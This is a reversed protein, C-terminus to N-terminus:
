SLHGLQSAKDRLAGLFQLDAPSASNGKREILRILTLIKSLRPPSMPRTETGFRAWKSESWTHRGRHRLFEEGSEFMEGQWYDKYVKATGEDISRATELDRLRAQERETRFLYGRPGKDGLYGFPHPLEHEFCYVRRYFQWRHIPDGPRPMGDSGVQVVLQPFDKCRSWNRCAYRIASDAMGQSDHSLAHSVALQLLNVTEHNGNLISVVVSQRKVTYLDVGM